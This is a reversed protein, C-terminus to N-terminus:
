QSQSQLLSLSAIDGSSTPVLFKNYGVPPVVLRCNAEDSRDRCHARGDCRATMSVCDDSSCTFESDPPSVTLSVTLARYEKELHSKSLKLLNKPKCQIM